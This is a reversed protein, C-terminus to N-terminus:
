YPAAQTMILSLYRGEYELALRCQGLYGLFGAVWTEEPMSGNLTQRLQKIIQPLSQASDCVDIVATEREGFQYVPNVANPRTDYVVMSDPTRAVVELRSQAHASRWRGILAKIPASWEEAKEQEDFEGDFFYALDYLVSDEFPYIYPYSAHARLNRIGFDAAAFHYPSFREIRLPFSNIPPPLHSLNESNRYVEDYDTAYEGPFGRLLHYYPHVGYERCWKLLQVNQLPSVGKRMLTLVHSSLSEIGPTITSVGAESMLKVQERTLNAKTEYFLKIGMKRKKLEPLFTRFYEMSIINDSPAVDAIGYRSVLHMLEDMAREPSKGRFAM